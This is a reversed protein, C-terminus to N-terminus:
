FQYNISLQYNRLPMPRNQIVQYTQNYLNNVQAQLLINTNKLTIKKSACIRTTQYPLLWNHNDSSVYRIGIYHHVYNITYSKYGIGIQLTHKLGPTYILQKNLSSDAISNTQQNSAITLDHLGSVMLNFYYIPINMKWDAELGRCWVKAINQPRSLGNQDPVWMIWNAINKNFVTLGTNVIIKHKILVKSKIGLEESWGTESKLFPNGLVAWYLDNFTPLRYSRAINSNFSLWKKLQFDLGYSPMFPIIKGDVIEKRFSIQQQLKNNFWTSKISGFCAIRNQVMTKSYANNSARNLQNMLSLQFHYKGLKYFQELYSINSFSKSIATGINKDYYNIFDDFFGHRINLEYYGKIFKYEVILKLTKDLQKASSDPINLAPPLKRDNTQLWSKLSITHNVMPNFTIEQMLAYTKFSSNSAREVNAKTFDPNNIGTSKQLLDINRYEFNNLSTQTFFKQVLLWKKTQYYLKFGSSYTKYSASGLMLEVKLGSSNPSISQLHVAGGMAGSGFISAPSGYQIAIGEILFSPILSFDVQGNMNSQLNFGNWLVPTHYANGGRFGPSTLTSPGYSKIFVQSQDALLQALNNQNHQTIQLSNILSFKNGVFFGSYKIAPITSINLPPAVVLKQSSDSPNQSNSFAVFSASFLSYSKLM